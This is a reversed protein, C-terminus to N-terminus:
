RLFLFRFAWRHLYYAGACRKYNRFCAFVSGQVGPSAGEESSSSSTSSTPEENLCMQIRHESNRLDWVAADGYTLECLGNVRGLRLRALAAIEDQGSSGSSTLTTPRGAARSAGGGGAPTDVRDDRRAKQSPARPLLSLWVRHRRLRTPAKRQKARDAHCVIVARTIAGGAALHWLLPFSVAQFRDPQTPIMRQRPFTKAM